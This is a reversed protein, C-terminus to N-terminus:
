TDGHAGEDLQSESNSLEHQNLTYPKPNVSMSTTADITDVFISMDILHTFFKSM